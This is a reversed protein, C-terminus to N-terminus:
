KRSADNGILENRLEDVPYFQICAFQLVFVTLPVGYYLLSMTTRASTSVDGPVYGGIALGWAVISAGIAMGVKIAFAIGASLLGEQRRGFRWQHYDVTDSAMAFIATMTISLALSAAVYVAIFVWPTGQTFPLAIYLITAIVLAASNGKRMGTRRLIPPAIFAGVLLTGSLTPLLISIMWPQGLVNIAFFPTLSLIAGFRIFNLLAFISVVLWATNRLMSGISNRLTSTDTADNAYRERCNAFTTLLMVTSVTAVILATIFFGREQDGRGFFNVAPMFLATVVIVGVSTGVSRAASLDLKYKVDRAMMPLLASYPINTVSLLLGMLFYTAAAWAFRVDQSADPTM